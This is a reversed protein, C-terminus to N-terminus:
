NNKVYRDNVSFVNENWDAYEKKVWNGSERRYVEKVPTWVGSLKIYLGGSLTLTVSTNSAGVLTYNPNDLSEATVTTSGISSISNGTLTVTCTDGSVLNTVVCTTSHENGDYMWSTPGWQLVVVKPYITFNQSVTGTFNGIGTATITATGANVNNLYSLTYHEGNHLEMQEGNVVAYVIPEPRIESGNYVFHDDITSMSSLSVAVVTFEKTDSQSTNDVYTSTIDTKGVKIGKILAM